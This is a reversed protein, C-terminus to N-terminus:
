AIIGKPLHRWSYIALASVLISWTIIFAHPEHWIIIALIVFAIVVHSVLLLKNLGLYKLPTQCFYVLLVGITIMLIPMVSLAIRDKTAFLVPMGVGFM